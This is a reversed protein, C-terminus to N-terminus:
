SKMSANVELCLPVIYFLFKPLAKGGRIKLYREVNTKTGKERNM